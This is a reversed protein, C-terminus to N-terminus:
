ISDENNNDNFGGDDSDDMVHDIDSEYDEDDKNDEPEEAAELEELWKTRKRKEGRQRYEKRPKQNPRRKKKNWQEVAKGPDFDKLPPGDSSIKMLNSLRQAGLSGRYDTFIRRFGTFVGETVANSVPMIFLIPVLTLFDKWENKKPSNLLIRWTKRYDIGRPEMQTVTYSVLSNWQYLIQLFPCQVGAKILPQEFKNWLFELAEEGFDLSDKWNETDLIVASKHITDSDSGGLRTDIANQILDVYEQKQVHLGELQREYDRITIGQYTQESVKKIFDKVYPLNQVDKDRVRQLTSSTQKLSRSVKVVDAEKTQFALSLIVAPQLVDLLLLIHLM